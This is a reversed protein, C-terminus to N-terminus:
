RNFSRRITLGQSTETSRAYRGIYMDAKSSVCTVVSFHREIVTLCLAAPTRQPIAGRSGILRRIHHRADTMM